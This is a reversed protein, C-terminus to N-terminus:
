AENMQFLSEPSPETPARTDAPSEWSPEGPGGPEDFSSPIRPRTGFPNTGDSVDADRGYEQRAGFPNADALGPGEQLASEGFRGDQDEPMEDTDERSQQLAPSHSLVTFEMPQGTPSYGGLTVAFHKRFRLSRTLYSSLRDDFTVVIIAVRHRSYEERRTGDALRAVSAQILKRFEDRSQHPSQLHLDMLYADAGRHHHNLVFHTPSPSGLHVAVSRDIDYVPQGSTQGLLDEVLNDDLAYAHFDEIAWRQWGHPLWVVGHSVRRGMWEQFLPWFDEPMMPRVRTM